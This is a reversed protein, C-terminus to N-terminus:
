EAHLVSITYGEERGGSCLCALHQTVLGDDGSCNSSTGPYRTHAGNSEKGASPAMRPNHAKEWDQLALGAAPMRAPQQSGHATQLALCPTPTPLPPGTPCWICPRVCALQQPGGTLWSVPLTWPSTKSSWM